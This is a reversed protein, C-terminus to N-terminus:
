SGVVHCYPVRHCPSNHCYSGSNRREHFSRQTNSKRYVYGGLNRLSVYHLPFAPAYLFRSNRSIVQQILSLSLAAVTIKYGTKFLATGPTWRFFVAILGCLGVLAQISGVAIVAISGYDPFNASHVGSYISWAGCAGLVCSAVIAFLSLPFCCLVTAFTQSGNCIKSLLKCPLCLIAGM